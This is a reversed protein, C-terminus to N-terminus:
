TFTWSVTNARLKFTTFKKVHISNELNVQEIVKKSMRSNELSFVQSSFLFCLFVFWYLLRKSSPFCQTHFWLVKKAGLMRAFVPLLSGDSVSLCVSDESLVQVRCWADFLCDHFRPWSTSGRKRQSSRQRLKRNATQRQTWRFPASDLGPSGPLHLLASLASVWVASRESQFMCLM